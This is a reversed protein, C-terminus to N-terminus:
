APNAAAAELAARSPPHLVAGGHTVLAGKIIEDQLDLNFANDKWFALIFTTLNRSYLTSADRPVSAALNLPAIIKVGHEIVTEGPRTLECNGGGEAALDVIISGPQMGRVMDATILRPAKIGGILATTIVVDSAACQQAILEGQKRYFDQSLEKAYGSATQADEGSDVGIFKAGLSQIQEAVAKRTDTATITAGLRHATAIAQLGAVGAGIVFVKAPHITGAATMLMPFYKPLEAAALLVAKYGAINAMSSLTDMSQARTIRPICDTSFASINKEALKRVIPLNRMPLLSGLLLAGPRLQEIQSEAPFDAGALLAGADAEVHGGAAVYADDSLLAPQGAGREVAIAIGKGTLKKCSEPVLAVRHEGVATEKLVAIRM